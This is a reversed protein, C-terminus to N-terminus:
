TGDGPVAMGEGLGAANALEMTAARGRLHFEEFPALDNRTLANLDKGARQLAALIKGSLDPQGYYGNISEAYLRPNGM